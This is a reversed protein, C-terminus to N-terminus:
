RYFAYKGIIPLPVDKDTAANVIGIVMYVLTIASVCLSVLSSIIGGIFPIFMMIAGIIGSALGLILSVVFLLLGQGCHFRVSPDDRDPIVMGVIFLIGIYSLVNSAKKM